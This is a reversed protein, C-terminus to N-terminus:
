PSKPEWQKGWVTCAWMWCSTIGLYCPECRGPNTQLQEGWFYSRCLRRGAAGTKQLLARCHQSCSLLSFGKKKKREGGTRDAEAKPHAESDRSACTSTKWSTPYLHWHARETDHSSISKSMVGPQQRDRQQILVSLESHLTWIVSLLRQVFSTM